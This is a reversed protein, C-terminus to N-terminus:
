RGGKSGLDSRAGPSARCYRQRLGGRLINRFRFCLRRTRGTGPYAAPYVPPASPGGNGAAAVVVVGQENAARLLQQLAPDHAGVFSMNLIKAGNSVAWDVAAVLIHTTTEPHMNDSNTRFARIALIQSEPAASEILGHARIIGTVATGHFDPAADERGAANFSRVVAGQLEPHTTDVTSDIVAIPASEVVSDQATGM